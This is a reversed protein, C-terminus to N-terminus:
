VFALRSNLIATKLDKQIVPRSTSLVMEKWASGPHSLPTQDTHLEYISEAEENLGSLINLCQIEEVDVLLRSDGDKWGILRAPGCVANTCYLRANDVLECYTPFASAFRKHSMLQSKVRVARRIEIARRIGRVVALYADCVVGVLEIRYPKRGKEQKDNNDETKEWYNEHITGDASVKYGVGMRYRCKTYM